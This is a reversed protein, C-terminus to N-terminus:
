KESLTTITMTQNHLQCQKETAATPSIEGYSYFGAMTVGAGLVAQVAETEEEIRDKLVLKRGVCSILIALEPTDSSQEGSMKAAGSAGDVLRDFNARMLTSTVGEPMDGAFTMSQDAENVSLLTRVIEVSGDKAPFQLRIPFLLGSGPLEKALDGLYEKYIELASRGDLDYLVNGKSRTIVRDPGFVDWGGQSGYNVKLSDSYCGILIINNEKPVEDLGVLTQKFNAADGVLGGTVTVGEPLGSMIGAVLTTGNVHLGDSFVMAHVLGDKSIGAVLEKGKAESEGAEAITTQSFQLQTKAFHIATVSLSDDYVRTGLIEGATSCLLIHASPYFGKIEDFHESKGVEERGGFVLVLQPSETLAGGKAEWGGKSTWLKQETQM